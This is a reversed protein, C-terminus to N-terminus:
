HNPCSIFAARCVRTELRFGQTQTKIKYICDVFVEIASVHAPCQEFHKAFILETSRTISNINLIKM